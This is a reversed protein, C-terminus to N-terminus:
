YLAVGGSIFLQILFGAKCYETLLYRGHTSGLISQSFLASGPFGLVVDRPATCITMHNFTVATKRSSAIMASM